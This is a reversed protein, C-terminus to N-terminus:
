SPPTKEAPSKRPPACPPRRSSRPKGLEPCSREHVDVGGCSKCCECEGLFQQCADCVFKPLHVGRRSSRPKREGKKGDDRRSGMDEGRRRNLRRRTVLM